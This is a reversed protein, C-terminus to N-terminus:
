KERKFPDREPAEAHPVAGLAARLLWNVAPVRHRMWVSMPEPKAGLRAKPELATRGLSLRSCGMEIATAVTCHLLQLYIPAEAAVARDFGIFYGVATEGDRIMSVYGVLEGRRSVGVCRFDDGLAGALAPLYGPAMTVPRVSQQAQVQLYLDHMRASVRGLDKMPAAVCGVAGAEKAIQRAAKRYKSDLSSLYGEYSKWRPDIALVMNPETEVARYSFRALAPAHANELATVDKLMVIGTPGALREARRVRYLVEAVGPWVPTPDCGPAFAVGHFGWSLLNGCILARDKVVSGLARLMRPQARKRTLDLASLSVLQAAVAARVEGRESVLAYRPAVNAPAHAELASLYRRQLFISAGAAARDWDECNLLGVRDAIAIDFGSPRHRELHDERLSSLAAVANRIRSAMPKPVAM